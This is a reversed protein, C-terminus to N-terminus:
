RRPLELTSLVQSNGDLTTAKIGARSLSYLYLNEGEQMIATRTPQVPYWFSRVETCIVADGAESLKESVVCNSVPNIFDSHDVQSIPTIGTELNIDFSLIGNFFDRTTWDNYSFPIALVNGPAFYNFALHNYNAPSWSYGAKEEFPVFKHLLVPNDLQSIDFIQLQVHNGAGNADGNKGITLLHNEDIPQMYDSFGPIELEGTLQPAEPDSLDFSFLPDIRRFTVVFGRDGMFRNSFITEGPAFGEIESVLALEGANDDKLIQLRNNSSREGTVTDFGIETSTVRLYGNHESFSFTDKVAGPIVGTAVYAPQEQGISFQHIVTQQDTNDFWWWGWSPQSIYLNDKSAYTLYGNAVIANSSLSSGDLNLSSVMLLRPYNITVDPHYLADCALLPQAIYQGNENVYTAPLLENVDITSLYTRVIGKLDTRLANRDADTTNQDYFRKQIAQVLENNRLGAPVQLNYDSVIHMRNEIRRSSIYNGDLMQRNVINPASKDQVNIVILEFKPQYIEPAIIVTDALPNTQKQIIDPQVHTIVFALQETENFFLASAYGGLDLRSLESMNEAPFADEIVFWNDNIVYLNGDSDTKLIDAENVGQEQNNTGSVNDPSKADAQTSASGAEATADAPLAFIECDICGGYRYPSDILYETFVQAIYDNYSNCSTTKNLVLNKLRTAPAKVQPEPEPEPTVQEIEEEPHIEDLSLGEHCASLIGALFCVLIFLTWHRISLYNNNYNFM